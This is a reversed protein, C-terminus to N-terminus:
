KDSYINDSDNELKRCWEESLKNMIDEWERTETLTLNLKYQAVEWALFNNKSAIGYMMWGGLAKAIFSWTKLTPFREHYVLSQGVVLHQFSIVINYLTTTTPLHKKKWAKYIHGRVKSGFFGQHQKCTFWKFDVRLRRGWQPNFRTLMYRFMLQLNSEEPEM